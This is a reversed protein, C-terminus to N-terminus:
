AGPSGHWTYDEPSERIVEWDSDCVPDLGAPEFWVAQYVRVELVEGIMNPVLLEGDPYWTETTGYELTRCGVGRTERPYFTSGTEKFPGLWGGGELFTGGELFGSRVSRWYYIKATPSPNDMALDVQAVAYTSPNQKQFLVAVSFKVDVDGSGDQNAEFSGTLQVEIGKQPHWSIYGREFDSRAGGNWSYEDSVPLGLGSKGYSLEGWTDLIAGHVEVMLGVQEGTTHYQLVGAEFRQYQVQAGTRNSDWGTQVGSTPAGLNFQPKGNAGILYDCYSVKFQEQAEPSISPDTTVGTGEPYYCGYHDALSPAPTILVLSLVVSVLLAVRAFRGM